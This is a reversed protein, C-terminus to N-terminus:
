QNESNALHQYEARDSDPVQSIPQTRIMEMIKILPTPPPLPTPSPAPNRDDAAQDKEEFALRLVNLFKAMTKM